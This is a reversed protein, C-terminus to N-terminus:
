LIQCRTAAINIIKRLSLKGFKTCNLCCQSLDHLKYSTRDGKAEIYSHRHTNIALYHWFKSTKPATNLFILKHVKQSLRHAAVVWLDCTYLNYVFSVIDKDVM